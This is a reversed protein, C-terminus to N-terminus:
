LEQRFTSKHTPGISYVYVTEKLIDVSGNIHRYNYLLIRVKQYTLDEAVLPDFIEYFLIHRISKPVSFESNAPYVYKICFTDRAMDM